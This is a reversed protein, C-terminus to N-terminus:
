FGLPGRPLPTGLLVAFLLHVIAAAVAGVLLAFWWPSHPAITRFLLPLGIAGSLAFGLSPVALIMGTMVLILLGVRLAAGRAMWFREALEENPGARRLDRLLVGAGGMIILLASLLPFLGSGPGGPGGLGLALSQQALALGFLVWFLSLGINLAAM